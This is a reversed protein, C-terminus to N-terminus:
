LETVGREEAWRKLEDDNQEFRSKGNQRNKGRSVKEPFLGQYRQEMSHKIAARQVEPPYRALAEATQTTKYAPMGEKRRFRLWQEWAEADLNQVSPWDPKEPKERASKPSSSSPNLSSPNLAVNSAGVDSATEVKTSVVKSRPPLKSPKEQSHPRQHELFKPIEICRIGEAEYRAILGQEELSALLADIDLDDAPFVEIKIRKPRDELRGERDAMCWLGIFLLRAEFPLEALQENSFFGPKISRARM